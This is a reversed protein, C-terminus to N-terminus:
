AVLGLRRCTAAGCRSAGRYAPGGPERFFEVVEGPQADFVVSRSKCWDVKLCLEHPGGAVPLEIRQGRKIKTVPEGM